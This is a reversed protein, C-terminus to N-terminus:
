LSTSRARVKTLTASSRCHGRGDHTRVIDITLHIYLIVIIPSRPMHHLRQAVATMSAEAKTNIQSNHILVAACSWLNSLIHQITFSTQLFSELM